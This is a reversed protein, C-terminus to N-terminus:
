SRRETKRRRLPPRDASYTYYKDCQTKEAPWDSTAACARGSEWASAAGMLWDMWLKALRYQLRGMLRGSRESRISNRRLFAVMASAVPYNEELHVQTASREYKSLAKDLLLESLPDNSSVVPGVGCV